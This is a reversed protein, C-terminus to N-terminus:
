GLGGPAAFSLSHLCSVLSRAQVNVYHSHRILATLQHVTLWRFDQRVDEHEDDGVEIVLYRNQAQFFRGGEESLVTDYRIADPPAELVDDLYAPRAEPPLHEYNEPACQVTPALEIVDLYGPEVRANVLVHLVGSIRKVLVAVLGTGHPSIMPQCWGHVERNGASVEVAIVDFFAGTEHEIVDDGLRWGTTEALPILKTAVDNGVRCETIWSLVDGASHLSGNDESLSRIVSSQFDDGGFSFLSAIGAASFPLCSLVTRTDMNIVDYEALLRHLQGVTIWCFGDLVEVDSSVEVVMNRNRKRYFWSGQESQLVDALVRHGGTDRFYELYPVTRGKHVQTYNSRTAQVTPSLQVGGANGPEMKAQMLCHLVGDFEKVLIGLIGVEPQNLIPQSWEKVPGGSVAVSLGEVSFFKGSEHAYNGTESARSWKRMEDFAVRRVDFVEQRKRAALWGHLQELDLVGSLALASEAIRVSVAREFTRLRTGAGSTTQVM